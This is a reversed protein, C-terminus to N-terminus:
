RHSCIFEKFIIVFAKQYIFLVNTPRNSFTFQNLSPSSQCRLIFTTFWKYSLSEIKDLVDAPEISNLYRTMAGRLIDFTDLQANIADNIWRPYSTKPVFHYFLACLGESEAITPQNTLVSYKNSVLQKFTSNSLHGIM